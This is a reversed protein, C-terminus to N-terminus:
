RSFGELKAADAEDKAKLLGCAQDKKIATNYDFGQNNMDYVMRREPEQYVQALSEHLPFGAFSIGALDLLSAFNSSTMTAKDQNDQFNQWIQRQNQRFASNAWIFYPVRLNEQNMAGHGNFKCATSPLSEGHDAGYIMLAKGPLQRLETILNGLVYDTFYITNDFEDSVREFEVQDGNKQQKSLESRLPFKAFSQPYRAHYLAHSGMTHLIILKKEPGGQVIQRFPTLLADDFVQALAEDAEAYFHQDAEAAFMSVLNNMFGKKQQTSLFYTTFGVEKFATILSKRMLGQRMVDIGTLYIPVSAMTYSRPTLMNQMSLLEGRQQAQALNPSTQRHYGNVSWRDYRATEGLVLVITQASNAFNTDKLKADFRFSQLQAEMKRMMKEEQAYLWFRFPLGFPFTDKVTSFIPPLTGVNFLGDQSNTAEVPYRNSNKERLYTQASVVGLYASYITLCLLVLVSYWSPRFQARRGLALASAHSAICLLCWAAIMSGRQQLYALTESADSAALIALLGSGSTAQYLYAYYAEAGSLLFLPLTLIKILLSAKWLQYWLYSLPLVFVIIKAVYFPMFIAQMVVLGNAIAFPLIWCLYGLLDWALLQRNQTTQAQVPLNARNLNPANM